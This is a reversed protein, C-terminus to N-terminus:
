SLLSQKMKELQTAVSGDLFVNGIRLKVGGILRPDIDTNMQIRRALLSELKRYITGYEQEGMPVSTIATVRVMNMRDRYLLDFASATEKLLEHEKREALLGLFELVIRHVREGLISALVEVKERPQVKTTFFFLRFSRDDKYLSAVFQLSENVQDVCDHKKALDFLATAFQRPRKRPMPKAWRM